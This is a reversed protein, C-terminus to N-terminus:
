GKRERKEIETRIAKLRKSYERYGEFDRQFEARMQGCKAKIELDKLILTPLAEYNCSM